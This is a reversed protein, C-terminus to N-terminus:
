HGERRLAEARYEDKTAWDELHRIFEIATPYSRLYRRIRAAQGRLYRARRAVGDSTMGDFQNAQARAHNLISLAHHHADISLMARNARGYRKKLARHTV